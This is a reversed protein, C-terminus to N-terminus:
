HDKLREFLDRAIAQERPLRLLIGKAESYRKLEYFAIAKSLLAEPHGPILKLLFESIAVVERYVESSPMMCCEIVERNRAGDRVFVASNNWLYVLKWRGPEGRTVNMVLPSIVGNEMSMVSLIMFNVDFAELVGMGAPTGRIVDLYTGSVAKNIMRGDIFVKHQPYLRWTLYGGWRMDNFMPGEIEHEKIFGVAGEPYSADVWYDPVRPKLEWPTSGALDLLMVVVVLAAPVSLLFKRMGGLAVLAGCIVFPLFVLAFNIGKAYYVGFLFMCLSVFAEPFNLRGSFVYKLALALLALLFFAGLYLPWTYHFVKYFQWLSKYEMIDTMVMGSVGGGRSSYFFAALKTLWGSLIRYGGPNLGTAAVGLFCVGFFRPLSAPPEGANFGARRAVLGAVEGLAYAGIVIVGVIYGGHLNSWLAMLFPLMVYSFPHAEKRRLRGLLLFVALTLYYSFVQPREFSYFVNKSIFLPPFALPLLLLLPNTGGRAYRAYIYVFPLVILLSRFVSVGQYGGALFVMYFFVQGLWQSRLGKVHFESLPTPLPYSFPDENGEAPLSLNQIVWEGTSLHWWLDPDSLPKLCLFFVYVFFLAAVAHLLYRGYAVSKPEHGGTLPM